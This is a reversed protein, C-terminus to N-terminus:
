LLVAMDDAVKRELWDDDGKSRTSDKVVGEPLSTPVLIGYYTKCTLLSLLNLLNTENLVAAIYELSPLTHPLLAWFNKHGEKTTISMEPSMILITIM